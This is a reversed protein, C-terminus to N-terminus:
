AYLEKGAKKEQEFMQAAADDSCNFRSALWAKRKRPYDEDATPIKKKTEEALKAAPSVPAGKSDTAPAAPAKAATTEKATKKAM